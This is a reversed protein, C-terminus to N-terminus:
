DTDEELLHRRRFLKEGLEVGLRGRQCRQTGKLWLFRSKRGADIVGGSKTFHDLGNKHVSRSAM